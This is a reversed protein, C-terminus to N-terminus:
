TGCCYENACDCSQYYPHYDKDRFYHHSKLEEPILLDNKLMLWLVSLTACPCLPSRVWGGNVMWWEGIANLPPYPSLRKIKTAFGRVIEVPALCLPILCYLNEHNQM